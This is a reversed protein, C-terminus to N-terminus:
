RRPPGPPAPPRPAARRVAVDAVVRGPPPQPGVAPDVVEVDHGRAQRGGLGGGRVERPGRDLVADPRAVGVGDRLPDAARPRGAQPEADGRAGTGAHRGPGSPSGSPRREPPPTRRAADPRPAARAGPADGAAIQPWGDAGWALKRLGLARSATPPQRRLLPLRDRRRLGVRRGARGPRRDVRAADHRRRRDARPRGPRRLPRHGDQVSGGVIRYTSDVGLCCRDWSTFLYYWGDRRVISPAEVANPHVKRDALHRRSRDASRKGSPYELQVMQIGSWYSGFVLWPTGADDETVEPDIANFDSAPRRACSRARTSGSTPPTPGTSRPTPPWGSSRTTTGPRRCRTTSTTPAATATSRPRGCTTRAPCPRTLWAPM